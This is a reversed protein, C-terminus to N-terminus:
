EIEEDLDRGARGCREIRPVKADNDSRVNASHPRPSAEAPERVQGISLTEATKALDSQGFVLQGGVGDGRFQDVHGPM